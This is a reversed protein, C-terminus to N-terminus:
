KKVVMARINTTLTSLRRSGKATVLLDDEIRVGGVGPLYIGPEITVVMGSKLRGTAKSGLGPSEHVERGLGHGVSHIFEYGADTIVKRAAIDPTKIMAGARLTKIGAKHAKSVIEYIEGIKPPIKGMFITRTMDSCYGGVNAGWDILVSQGSRIKTSDPRYHCDCAHPGAALITEFAPKDAGELRMLYELEAAVDRESRGVFAKLGRAMLRNFARQAIGIAKRIQPIEHEDKQGRLPGVVNSLTKVRRVGLVKIFKEAVTVSLVDGQVGLKRVKRGRLSKKITEALGKERIVVDIDPCERPAQQTFRGDSILVAWGKGVLLSASDGTFGCFYGVDEQKSILIADVERGVARKGLRRRRALMAKLKIEKTSM